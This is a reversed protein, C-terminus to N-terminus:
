IVPQFVKKGLPLAAALVVLCIVHTLTLPGLIAANDARVLDMVIAILAYAVMTLLALQGPQTLRKSVSGLTALLILLAALEYLPAPHV